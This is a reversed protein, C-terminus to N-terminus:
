QVVSITKPLCSIPSSFLFHLKVFLLSYSGIIVRERKNLPLTDYFKKIREYTGNPM